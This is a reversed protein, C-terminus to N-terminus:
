KRERVVADRVGGLLHSMGRLHDNYKSMTLATMSPAANSYVLGAPGEKELAQHLWIRDPEWQAPAKLAAQSRRKAIGVEIRGSDATLPRSAASAAHSSEHSQRSGRSLGSAAESGVTFASATDITSASRVSERSCGHLHLEYPLRKSRPLSENRGPYFKHRDRQAKAQEENTTSQLPMPKPPIWTAKANASALKPDRKEDGDPREMNTRANQSLISKPAHRTSSAATSSRARSGEDSITFASPGSLSRAVSGRESAEQVDTGGASAILAAQRMAKNALRQKPKMATGEPRANRVEAPEYQRYQAQSVSRWPDDDDKPLAAQKAARGALPGVYVRHSM